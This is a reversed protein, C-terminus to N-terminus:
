MILNIRLIDEVNLNLGLSQCVVGKVIDVQFNLCNTVVASKRWKRIQFWNKVKLFRKEEM